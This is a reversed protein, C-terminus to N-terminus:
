QVQSPASPPCGTLKLVAIRSFRGDDDATVGGTALWGNISEKTDSPLMTQIEALTMTPSLTGLIEFTLAEVRKVRASLESLALSTRVDHRQEPTPRNEDLATSGIKEKVLISLSASSSKWTELAQEYARLQERSVKSKPLRNRQTSNV